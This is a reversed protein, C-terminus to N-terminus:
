RRKKKILDQVLRRIENSYEEPMTRSTQDCHEESAFVVTTNLTTSRFTIDGNRVGFGSPFHGIELNKRNGRPHVLYAMVSAGHMTKFGNKSIMSQFDKAELIAKAVDEHVLVVGNSTDVIGIYNEAPDFMAENSGAPTGPKPIVLHLKGFEEKRAICEGMIQLILQM